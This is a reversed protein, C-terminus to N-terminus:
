ETKPRIGLQAKAVFNEPDLILVQQFRSKADASQKQAVHVLGRELLFSVDTPYFGIMKELVLEAQELKGQLRLSFALRLNAYYNNSDLMLIQRAALEVEAYRGQAMLPLMYGLRPEVAKPKLKIAEIYYVRSNAHKGALYHLWGLRLQEVYGKKELIQLAKISNEYDQVREYRYSNAYADQITSQASSSASIMSLSLVITLRLWM